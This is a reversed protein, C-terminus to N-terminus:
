ERRGPDGLGVVAEIRRGDALQVDRGRPEGAVGRVGGLQGLGAAGPEHGAGEAWGIPGGRHAGIDAIRSGAADAPFLQLDGVLFRGGAQDLAAGVDEEDLRDEVGEVRLRRDGRDLREEVLEALPQRQDDRPGDDVRRAPGQRALGDLGEPVADAMGVRQDDPEVAGETRLLESLM